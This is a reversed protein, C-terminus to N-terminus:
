MMETSYLHYEGSGMSDEFIFVVGKSYYYWLQYNGGLRSAQRDEIKDPCGHKIYIKGM